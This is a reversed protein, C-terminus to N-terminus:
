SWDRNEQPFLFFVAYETKLNSVGSLFSTLIKRHISVKYFGQWEMSIASIIYVRTFERVHGTYIENTTKIWTFVARSRSSGVRTYRLEIWNLEIWNVGSYQYLLTFQTRISVREKGKEKKKEKKKDYAM